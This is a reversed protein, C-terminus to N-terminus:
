RPGDSICRLLRSDAHVLPIGPMLLTAISTGLVSKQTGSNLSSWRFVDFNDTGYMHRPDTKSTFENVFDNEVFM